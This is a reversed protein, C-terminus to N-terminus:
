IQISIYVCLDWLPFLRITEERSLITSKPLQSRDRMGGDQFRALYDNLALAIRFISKRRLGRNYLPMLCGLPTIYEPFNRFFWAQERLSEKFRRLDFNQLYRLGGHIIRLTNNSTAQGFQDREILLPRLGCRTAELTLLAGYIGGGVVILDFTKCTADLPNCSIQASM